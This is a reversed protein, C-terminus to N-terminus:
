RSIAQSELECCLRTRVSCVTCCVTLDRWTGNKSLTTPVGRQQAQCPPRHGQQAPKTTGCTCNKRNHVDSHDHLSLSPDRWCHLHRLNLEDHRKPVNRNHLLSPFACHSSHLKRCHRNHRGHLTKDAKKAMKRAGGPQRSNLALKRPGRRHLTRRWRPGRQGRVKQRYRARTFLCM